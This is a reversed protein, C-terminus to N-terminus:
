QLRAAREYITSAAARAGMAAAFAAVLPAAALPIADLPHILGPLKALTAGPVLAMLVGLAVLGACLAGVVGARLGLSAAEDAVRGAAQSRTAGLDALVTVFDTRRAAMTRMALTVVLAMVAAFASAGFVAIMRARAAMGAIGSGAPPRVVEGTVGVQALAAVLDGNVDSNEFGPALEVEILRLPPREMVQVDAGGWQQLLEAARAATIPAAREVQPAGALVAGAAQIAGPGDPAVVRVIAYNSRQERYTEALRDVGRAFLGAAAAAFCAIALTWFLARDVDAVPRNM